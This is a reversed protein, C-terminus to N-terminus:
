ANSRQVLAAGALVLGLGLLKTANLPKPPLGFAGLQDLLTAALLQGAVVCVFFLAVGLLPAVIVGGAVFVVGVIGGVVVWWPLAALLGLDGSGGGWTAWALIAFVLSIAISICAALLSSGLMRAMVANIPPQLSLCAGIAVAAAVYLTNAVTADKTLRAPPMRMIGYDRRGAPAGRVECTQDLLDPLSEVEPM